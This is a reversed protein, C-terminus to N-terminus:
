ISYIKWVRKSIKYPIKKKNLLVSFFTLFKWNGTCGKTKGRTM